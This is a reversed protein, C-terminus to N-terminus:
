LLLWKEKDFAQCSSSLFDNFVEMEGEHRIFSMEKTM